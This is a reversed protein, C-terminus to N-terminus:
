PPSVVPQLDVPLEGLRLVAALDKTEQASGIGNIQVGTRGDIGDPNERFDITALAVVRNDLTIAFRQLAADPASGPPLVIESGRRAVRKTLRAFAERGKPTFEMTIVPEQTQQDLSQKPNKIDTGSLERDDELVFFRQVTEPQNPAREAEVITIGRPVKLIEGGAGLAARSPAPGAALTTPNRFAYYQAGASDNGLDDPIDTREAKPRSKAAVRVAEYLAKAGAFPADPGRGDIVNPEWDYFGLSGTATVADLTRGPKVSSVVIRDRGSRRVRADKQGVAEFRDCLAGVTAELIM